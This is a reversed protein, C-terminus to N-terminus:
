HGPGCSHPDPTCTAAHLVGVPADRWVRAHFFTITGPRIEVEGTVMQRGPVGAGGGVEITVPYRGPPLSQRTFGVEGPLLHWSRTDARELLAGGMDALMGSVEGGKKEAKEALYHKAAARAIARAIVAPLDRRYDRMVADSVDALWRPRVAAHGPVLVAIRGHLLEPRRYAPWAITLMSTGNGVAELSSFASPRSAEDVYLSSDGPTARGLLASVVAAATSTAVGQRQDNALVKMSDAHMAFTLSQEVRHAVFGHELVVVLEGEGSPVSLASLTSDGAVSVANRYAVDADARQGAAEFVTGALYHMFVRTSPEVAVGDDAFRQLAHTLRRAEVTAEGLENERVYALMAYYSVFLRETSGPLYPLVRDNSVLSLAGKSLSRTYREDAMEAARELASASADFRGAYFATLGGYLNRLLRDRPASEKRSGAQRLAVDFAGRALSQRLDSDTRLLGNPAVDFSRVSDRLRSCGAAAALSAGLALLAALRRGAQASAV